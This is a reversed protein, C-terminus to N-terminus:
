IQIEGSFVSTAPGTLLIGDDSYNITLDGGKLHVTIDSNPHCLGNEVAVVVSACAGTGCALTEGSGREYVRMAIEKKNIIKIFEANVKEPFIDLNEFKPGIEDLDINELNERFVVCHPNGMSVCNIKYEIGDVIIPYNLIKDGQDKAQLPLRVPISECKFIAKGM